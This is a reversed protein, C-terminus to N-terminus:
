QKGGKSHLLHIAGVADKETGFVQQKAENYPALTVVWYEKGAVKAWQLCAFKKDGDWYEDYNKFKKIALPM